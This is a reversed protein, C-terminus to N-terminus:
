ERDNEGQEHFIIWLMWLPNNKNALGNWLDGIKPFLKEDITSSHCFSFFHSFNYCCTVTDGNMIWVYIELM